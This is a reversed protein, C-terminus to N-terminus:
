RNMVYRTGLLFLKKKTPIKEDVTGTSQHGTM